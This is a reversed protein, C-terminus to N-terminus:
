HGEEWGEERERERERERYVPRTDFFIKSNESNGRCNSMQRLHGGKKRSESSDQLSLNGAGLIM